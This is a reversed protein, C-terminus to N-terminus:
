ITPSQDWGLERAAAMILMESRLGISARSASRQSIYLFSGRFYIYNVQLVLHVQLWNDRSKKTIYIFLNDKVSLGTQTPNETVQFHFRPLLTWSQVIYLLYLRFRQYFYPYSVQPGM